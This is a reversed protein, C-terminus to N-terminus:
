NDRMDMVVSSNIRGGKLLDLLKEFNNEIRQMKKEKIYNVLGVPDSKKWYNEDSGMKKGRALFLQSETDDKDEYSYM